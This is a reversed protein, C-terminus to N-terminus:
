GSTGLRITVGPAWGLRRSIGLGSAVVTPIVSSLAVSGTRVVVSLAGVVHGDADIIRTAVSDAGATTEERVIATSTRRCESLDRRM